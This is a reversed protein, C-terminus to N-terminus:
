FMYLVPDNGCGEYLLNSDSMMVLKIVMDESDRATRTVLITSGEILM